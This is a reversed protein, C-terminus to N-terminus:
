STIYLGSLRSITIYPSRGLTVILPHPGLTNFRPVCCLLAPRVKLPTAAREAVPATSLTPQGPLRLEQGYVLEASSIEYDEKPAATLGMLVWPLHAV